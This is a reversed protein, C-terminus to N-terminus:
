RDRDNEAKNQKRKLPRILTVRDQKREEYNSNKPDLSADILQVNSERSHLRHNLIIAVVYSAVGLMISLVALWFLYQVIEHLLTATSSSGINEFVRLNLIQQLLLYFAILVVGALSLPTKVQEVVKFIKELNEQM